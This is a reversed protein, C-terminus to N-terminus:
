RGAPESSPGSSSSSLRLIPSAAIVSPRTKKPDVTYPPRTAKRGASTLQRVRSCSTSRTAATTRSSPARKVAQSLADAWCASRVFPPCPHRVADVAHGLHDARAGFGPLVRRAVGDLRRGARHAVQADSLDDLEVDGDLVAADRLVARAHVDRELVLLVLPCPEQRGPQM